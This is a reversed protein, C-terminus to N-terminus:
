RQKANADWIVLVQIGSLVVMAIQIVPDWAEDAIGVYALAAITMFVGISAALGLGRMAAKRVGEKEEAAAALETRARGLDAELQSAREAAALEASVDVPYAMAVIGTSGPLPLGLTIKLQLKTGDLARGDVVRTVMARQSPAAVFGAVKARHKAEDSPPVLKHLSLGELDGRFLDCAAVSAWVIIHDKDIGLAAIPAADAIVAM